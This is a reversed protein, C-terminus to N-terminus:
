EGLRASIIGSADKQFTLPTPINAFENIFSTNAIENLISSIVTSEPFTKGCSFPLFCNLTVMGEADSRKLDNILDNFFRSVTKYSGFISYYQMKQSRQEIELSKRHFADLAKEFSEPDYTSSNDSFLQARYEEKATEAIQFWSFSGDDNFEFTIHVGDSRSYILILGSCRIHGADEIVLMTEQFAVSQCFANAVTTNTDKSSSSPAFLAWILAIIFVFLFIM